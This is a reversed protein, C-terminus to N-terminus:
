LLVTTYKRVRVLDNGRWRLLNLAAFALSNDGFPSFDLSSIAMVITTATKGIL